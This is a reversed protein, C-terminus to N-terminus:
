EIGDSDEIILRSSPDHRLVQLAHQIIRGVDRSDLGIAPDHSLGQKSPWTAEALHRRNPIPDTQDCAEEITSSSVLDTGTTPWPPVTVMRRAGVRAAKCASSPASPPCHRM